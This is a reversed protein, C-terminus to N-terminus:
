RPPELAWVQIDIGDRVVLDDIGDGTVDGVAPQHGGVGVIATHCRPSADPNLAYVHMLRDTTRHGVLLEDVGDGDLDAAIMWGFRYPAGFPERLKPADATGVVVSLLTWPSDEFLPNDSAVVLRAPEGTAKVITTDGRMGPLAEYAGFTAEDGEIAIQWMGQADITLLELAGDDDIDIAELFHDEADFTVDVALAPPTELEWQHLRAGALVGLELAGDGDFDRVRTPAELDGAAPTSTSLSLVGPETVDIRAVAYTGGESQGPAFLSTGDVAWLDHVIHGALDLTTVEGGGPTLAHLVDGDDVALIEGVGDGDIDLVALERQAVGFPVTTMALNMPEDCAATPQQGPPMPPPDGGECWGDVCVSGDACDSDAWCDYGPSCRFTPSESVACCPQEECVGSSCWGCDGCDSDNSCDGGPPVPTTGDEGTPVDTDSEGSSDANDEFGGELGCGLVATSLAVLGWGRKHGGMNAM